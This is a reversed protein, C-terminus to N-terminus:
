QFYNIIWKPLNSIHSIAFASFVTLTLATIFLGIGIQLPFSVLFVNMQPLARGILGMGFTVCFLVVMIPGSIKLASIFISGFLNMASSLFADSIMFINPNIVQFSEVIAFVTLHHASVSFYLLSALLLYIKTAIPNNPGDQPDIVNALGFGMQVDIISGAIQFAAFTLHVAFAILFGIVVETFLLIFIELFGQSGSVSYNGVLPSIFFSLVLAIMFKIRVPIQNPGMLPIYLIIAGIRAFVLLIKEIDAVGFDLLSM